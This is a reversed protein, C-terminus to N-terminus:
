ICSRMMKLMMVKNPLFVQRASFGKDYRESDYAWDEPGTPKVFKKLKVSEIFPDVMGIQEFSEIQFSKQLKIKYNFDYNDNFNEPLEGCVQTMEMARNKKVNSYLKNQKALIIQDLLEQDYAIAKYGGRRYKAPYM